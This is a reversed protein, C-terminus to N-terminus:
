PKVGLLELFKMPDVSIDSIRVSVHLHPSEAYGTMGSLGIVQGREVLEGVNVKIKSLHMYMTQLGQGHDIVITKGYDRYTRAIRVIGRNMARVRTGEEARFDTGKHTISEGVTQRSYGYPDTVVIDTNLPVRFPKTWLTRAFTRLGIFTANEAALTSILMNVSSTTNGGLKEPIGLPAEVKERATITITKEAKEGNKFQVILPYTASKKKIDIGILAHPTGDYTFFPIRSGDFTISELPTGTTITILVPEGQLVTGPLVSIIPAAFAVPAFLFLALAPIYKM